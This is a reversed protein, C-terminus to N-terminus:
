TNFRIIETDEATSFMTLKLLHAHVNSAASMETCIDFMKLAMHLTTVKILSTLSQLCGAPACGM